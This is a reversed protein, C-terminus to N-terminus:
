TVYDYNLPFYHYNKKSIQKNQINTLKDFFELYNYEKKLCKYM